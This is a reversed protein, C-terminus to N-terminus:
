KESFGGHKNASEEVVSNPSYQHTTKYICDYKAWKFQLQMIGM